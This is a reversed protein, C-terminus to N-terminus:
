RFDQCFQELMSTPGDGRRGTPLLPRESREVLAAVVLLGVGGVAIWSWTPASALRPGASLVITGLVMLTGAVLPAGLRRAGGIGLAVVGLTLAAFTAWDTSPELQSALLWTGALALGPGYALWSTVPQKRRVVAGLVVLGGALVGVVMDVGSAGYPAISAIAWENTGTTWWMSVMAYVALVAGPLAALRGKWLGGVLALQAGLAMLAISTFVPNAFSSAHLALVSSVLGATMAPLLRRDVVAIGSLATGVLVGTMAATGPDVGVTALVLAGTLMALGAAVHSRVDNVRRSSGAFALAILGSLVISPVTDPREAVTSSGIFAVAVLPIISREPRLSVGLAILAAFVISGP